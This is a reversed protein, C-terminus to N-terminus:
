SKAQVLLRKKIRSLSEPAIGMYQAILRQPVRQFIDPREEMLELFRKEPTASQLSRTRRINESAVNEVVIRFFEKIVPSLEVLEVLDTCKITYCVSPVLSKIFCTAPTKRSFSELDTIFENEFVFSCTRESGTEDVYFLHLGGKEVFFVQQAVEGEYLLIENRKYHKKSFFSLIFGEEAAPVAVSQSIINILPHQM